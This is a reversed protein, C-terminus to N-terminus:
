GISLHMLTNTYVYLVVLMCTHVHNGMPEEGLFPNNHTKSQDFGEFAGEVAAEMDDDLPDTLVLSTFGHLYTHTYLSCKLTALAQNM